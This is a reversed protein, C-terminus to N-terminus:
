DVSECLENELFLMGLRRTIIPIKPVYIMALNVVRVPTLLEKKRGRRYKVMVRTCTVRSACMPHKNKGDRESRM